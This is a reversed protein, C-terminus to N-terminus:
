GRRLPSTDSLTAQGTWQLDRYSGGLPRASGAARFSSEEDSDFEAATRVGTRRASRISHFVGSAFRLANRRLCALGLRGRSGHTQLGLIMGDREVGLLRKGLQALQGLAGPRHNNSLQQLAAVAWIGRGQNSAALNFLDGGCSLHGVGPNEDEVV